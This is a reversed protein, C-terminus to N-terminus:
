VVVLEEKNKSKFKRFLLRLILYYIIASVLEAIMIAVLISGGMPIKERLLIILIIHLGIKFVTLAFSYYSKGFGDLMKSSIVSVPICLLIIAGFISIYFISTEMNVIKFSNFVLNRNLIFFIAIVFSTALSIKLVYNYMYKLKDIEKAGFLHGTVSMLGRGYGKIPSIFLDRIKASASYLLIGIKGLEEILVGNVFITLICWIANDFFNPLAVKLIEFFIKSKIKFYKLTLPIKSRKSLYWYFMVIVCIASSIITAYAAGIVGLKFTFIFIPDLIMNLINSGVMLITPTKSNGEAQLTESLFNSLLFIISFVFLPLSYLLILDISETIKIFVFIQRMFLSTILCLAWVIAVVILGHILSNYSSEYDGYGIYRSMISNTGQGISDGFSCILAFFPASVSVAYLADHSLSSVWFMDVIGYFADFIVFGLIPVALHWFSKKPSSVLDIKKQM